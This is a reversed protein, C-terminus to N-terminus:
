RLADTKLRFFWLRNGVLLLNNPSQELNSLSTPHFISMHLTGEMHGM